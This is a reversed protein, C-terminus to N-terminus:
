SHTAFFLKPLSLNDVEISGIPLIVNEKFQFQMSDIKTIFMLPIIIIKCHVIKLSQIRGNMKDM